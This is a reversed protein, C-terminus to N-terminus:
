FQIPALNEELESPSPVLRNHHLDSHGAFPSCTSRLIASNMPSEDESWAWAWAAIALAFESGSKESQVPKM